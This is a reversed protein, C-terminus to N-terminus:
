PTEVPSPVADPMPAAPSPQPLPGMLGAGARNAITRAEDATIVVGVGLYIKQILEAISRADSADNEGDATGADTTTTSGPPWLYDDGGDVPPLDEIARIENVSRWGSRLATDHAAYRDSTTMRLLSDRNFQVFQPRPLLASWADEVVTTLPNLSAILLNLWQSQVNSYTMSAGSDYGIAEPPLKFFRAVDQGSASMSELFQADAPTLAVPAYDMGQSLVAVGGGSVMQNWRERMDGAQEATLVQDTSLLAGPHRGETFWNSGYQQAALGVGIATRAASLTSQGIPSGATVNVARHWLRSPDVLEGFVRVELDRTRWDWKANVTDPHLIEVNTPWGNAGFSTIYGFVNGRMVLSEVVQAIFGIRDISVSPREVVSPQTALLSPVSGTRRYAAVPMTSILDVYVNKARWVASHMSASEGTVAVGATYRGAGRAPIIGDQISSFAVSRSERLSLLGM